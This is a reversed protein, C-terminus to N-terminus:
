AECRGETGATKLTMKNEPDPQNYAWIVKSEGCSKTHYSPMEPLTTEKIQKWPAKLLNM